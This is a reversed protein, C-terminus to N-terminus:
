REIFVDEDERRMGYRERAIHDIILSDNSLDQLLIENQRKRESTIRLEEQLARIERKQALRRVLSNDDAVLIVILFLVLVIIYKHRGIFAKLAPLFGNEM